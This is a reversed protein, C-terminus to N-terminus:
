PVFSALLKRIPTSERNWLPFAYKPQFKGTWCAQRAADGFVATFYGGPKPPQPCKHRPEGHVRKESRPMRLSKRLFQFRDHLSTAPENLGSMLLDADGSFEAGGQSVKALGILIETFEKALLAENM